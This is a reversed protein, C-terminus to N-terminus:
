ELAFITTLVYITTSNAVPVNVTLSVGNEIVAMSGTVTQQDYTGGTYNLQTLTDGDRKYFTTYYGNTVGGDKHIGVSAVYFKNQTGVASGTSNITFTKTTASGTSNTFYSLQNKIVVTKSVTELAGIAGAMESPLFTDASGSKTRIASAINQYNSKETKVWSM